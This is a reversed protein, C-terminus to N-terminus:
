NGGVVPRITKISSYPVFTTGKSPGTTFGGIEYELNTLSIGVLDCFEVTGKHIGDESILTFSVKTGEPFLDQVKKNQIM